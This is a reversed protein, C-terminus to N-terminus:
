SSPPLERLRAARVPRGPALRRHPPRPGPPHQPVPVRRQRPLPRELLPHRERRRRGSCVDGSAPAAACHLPSALSAHCCLVAPACRKTSPCRPSAAESPLGSSCSCRGPPRAASCPGTVGPTQAWLCVCPTTPDARTHRHVTLCPPPLEFAGSLGATHDAHAHTCFYAGARSAPTLWAATICKVVAGTPLAASAGCGPSRWTDVALKAHPQPGCRLVCGSLYSDMVCLHFCLSQSRSALRPSRLAVAATPM